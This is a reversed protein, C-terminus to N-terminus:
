DHTPETVSSVGLARVVDLLTEPTGFGGAKTVVQVGHWPGGQLQGYPIGPELEGELRVGHAGLRECVARATAGGTLVLAGPLFDAAWGETVEALAQAAEGADRDSSPSTCVVIMEHVGSPRRPVATEDGVVVIPGLGRLREIQAQTQPTPSGAVVLIAGRGTRLIKARQPAHGAIQRALGGSGVLLWEPHHPWGRALTQLNTPSEADVVVHQAGLVATHQIGLAEKLSAGAVGNVYVRGDRFLRGQEPFAPALVAVAKGSGALAGAVMGAIPGRLTSDIKLLVDAAPLAATLQRAAEHTVTEAHDNSRERLDLDVSLVETDNPWAMPVGHLVLTQRTAAFPAAADCAGTFDDALILLRRADSV